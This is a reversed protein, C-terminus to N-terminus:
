SGEHGFLLAAERVLRAAAVATIGAPDAEPLVEMVDVGVVRLGALSHLLGELEDYRPGGPEPCGTGPACAPDLVDIDISVYVPGRALQERVRAPLELGPSSWACTAALRYEERTGSRVGLQVIQDFGWRRGVHYLWTAHGLAEGQYAARLDLHADLHLLMTGPLARKLATFAALTATHEGGLLVPLGARRIQAVTAEIAALAEPLSLGDLDLDGADALRLDVLDRDLRPSYSELVDSAQRIRQPALRTGARFSETLDLPAGVLVVQGETAPRSALFPVSPPTLSM